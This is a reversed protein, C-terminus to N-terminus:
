RLWFEQFKRELDERHEPAAIKILERAREELTLGHLYAVGNETVVYQVHARTTVVGAGPKLFPVIKSEGKATKSPLAIIPKGGKSLAAGRIFDMQGGIGSYIRPGISDACVQGTLDIEIASNIAIVKPNQAIIHPNNTYSCDLLLVEPNDDIFDYIKQTGIVFSSVIKGPHKVKYKGTIAGKRHLDIIGDSFMETHIGLDKHNGLLALVANPIAGIGLQITSGDEILGAINKGIADTVATNKLEKSQYIPEDVFVAKTIQSYHIQEGFTRPLKPNIQAIIKKTTKLASITIDVSPGLSCMGHKDPPTLQVMAVDLEVKQNYFLHPIDSLFIPVYNPVLKNNTAARMNGGNFFSHVHFSERYAEDVYSCDGETHMHYIKVNRLEPARRVMAKVLEQPTAAASHVFVNNNSQIEKVAEDASVYKLM